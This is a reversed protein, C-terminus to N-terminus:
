LSVAERKIKIHRKQGIVQENLSSGRYVNTFLMIRVFNDYRGDEEMKM